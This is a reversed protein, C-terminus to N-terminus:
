DRGSLGRLFAFILDPLDDSYGGELVAFHPISLKQFQQGLWNFDEAELPEESLPDGSYADFGASIAVLDPKWAKMDSFAKSLASKYDTRSAGPPVPYNSCNDNSTAGTGPYCPFQHISYFSCGPNGQLIAETGNGHHVDFDYVAVRKFGMTLAELSAVAVQNLYCFGMVREREAHHGPPRMLSLSSIGQQAAHLARLAGGVSRRAHSAIDPHAPTDADFDEGQDLSRLHRPSHAQLISADEVPLPSKWELKLSDQTKLKAVTGLIREPREPHGRQGYTTCAPDTVIIM